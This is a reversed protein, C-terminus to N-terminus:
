NKLNERMLSAVQINEQNSTKELQEIILKQREVPHNQSLKAKAEIKTIKIKFAVIGKSMGEIFSPEVTGLNYPSDPSEYKNVLNNLSDFIVKDDELIEMMGYLHIAVYNWTPVAKTTEYWSPSIYCHPGQFVVLVQKDEVDKWQGNARAFHGYLSNEDKNLILPLHTAYPEGKNQSFVTAFSFREIFDYIIDKNKIEFHKPIFM